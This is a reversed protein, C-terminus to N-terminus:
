RHFDGEAAMAAVMVKALVVVRAVVVVWWWKLWWKLWWGCDVNLQCWGGERM